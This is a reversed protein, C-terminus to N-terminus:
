RINNLKRKISAEGRKMVRQHNYRFVPALVFALANMWPIATSVSWHCEVVCANGQKYFHWAGSGELQGSAAGKLLEYKRFGTLLLDFELTYFMPSALRYRRISGIGNEDGALLERVEKVDKWWSAWNESHYILEWVEEVPSELQWTSVFSYQKKM